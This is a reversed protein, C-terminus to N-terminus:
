SSRVVAVPCASHHLVNRSVSGLMLRDLAGPHHSGVVVLQSGRSEAELAAIAPAEVVVTEVELETWRERVLTRADDVAHRASSSLERAWQEISDVQWNALDWRGQELSQWACVIRLPVHDRNARQAAFLLAPESDSTGDVGVVVPLPSGPDAVAGRVVVVPCTAHQAVSTAVSGLMASAFAGRGRHGVVVLAARTSADILAEPARSTVAHARISGEPIIKSAIDRGDRALQETAKMSSRSLIGGDEAGPFPMGPYYGCSLVHLEVGQRQAEHAAWAVALAANRSGDFGVVVGEVTEFFNTSM